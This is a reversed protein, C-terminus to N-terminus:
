LVRLRRLINGKLYVVYMLPFKKTTTLLMEMKKEELFENVILGEGM